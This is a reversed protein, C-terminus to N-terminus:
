SEIPLCSEVLSVFYACGYPIAEDNFDYAQNHVPATDGNGLFIFAGPREALMFSFDEGGMIPTTNADVAEPGVASVAAHLATKTEDPDNFTVPLDKTYTLAVNAGTMVRVGDCIENMRRETVQLAFPSLSRVTGRLEATEPIINDSTGMHIQTISVVLRDASTVSRSVITQFANIIQAVAITPDIGKEPSSAHSGEGTVTVRFLDASAMIGGERIGFHGVPIKPINHLGFVKEIGFRDMLGDKVMELGGSEAEEAPQFIVAVTGDFDRNRALFRAAGLLITTHGDHGCAHMRGDVKSAYPLNTREQMPLADMDARLGIVRGSRTTRGKIVGVVGTRGVGEVVEDVGMEKLRAAVLGATREVAFTLEPHAHFDRRWEILEAIQDDFAEPKM